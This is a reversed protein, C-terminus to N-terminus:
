SSNVAMLRKQTGGRRGLVGLNIENFPEMPFCWLRRIHNLIAVDVTTKLPRGFCM